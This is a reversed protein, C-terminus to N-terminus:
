LSKAHQRAVLRGGLLQEYMLLAWCAYFEFIPSDDRRTSGTQTRTQGAGRILMPPCHFSGFATDIIAKPAAKALALALRDSNENDSYGREKGLSDFNFKASDIRVRRGDRLHIDLLDRVQADTKRMDGTNIEDYMRGSYSHGGHYQAPANDVVTTSIVRVRGRVILVIESALLGFSESRWPECMFMPKPAGIAPEIRKLAVPEQFAALQSESVVLPMAGMQRLTRDATDAPEGEAVRSVVLPAGKALRQVLLYPDLMTAAALERSWKAADFNDPWQIVTVYAFAPPM